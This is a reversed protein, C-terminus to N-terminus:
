RERHMWALTLRRFRHAEFFALEDDGELIAQLIRKRGQSWAAVRADDDFITPHSGAQYLQMSVRALLELFPRAVIRFLTERLDIEFQIRDDATRCQELQGLLAAIKEPVRPDRSRAAAEFIDCDLLVTVEFSDRYSFNHVRMYTAFARELADDGPRAGYYGGGPGRKVTLLGEHELIRAAQQVTVIGVDLGAAVENLSGLQTGPPQELILNRLKEATEAVLRPKHSKDIGM